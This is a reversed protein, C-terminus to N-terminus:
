LSSHVARKINLSLFNKKLNEISKEEKKKKKQVFKKKKKKKKEEKKKKEVLKIV